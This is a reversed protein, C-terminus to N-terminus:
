CNLTNFPLKLGKQEKFLDMGIADLDLSNL